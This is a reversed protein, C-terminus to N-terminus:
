LDKKLWLILEDDLLYPKGPVTPQYEYTIGQGDPIYGLRTYLRQASGYDAYLGVGIGIKQYGKGKALEELWSILRSGLGKRRYEKYIWVDHIEPIGAFYPYQSKLLLSGYGLIKSGQEVIGVTRINSQQDRYYRSWKEKTEQISSWSLCHDISIVHIDTEHMPRIIAEKNSTSDKNKM